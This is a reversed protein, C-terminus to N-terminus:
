LSVICDFLGFVMSKKSGNDYPYAQLATDVRVEGRFKLTNSLVHTLGLTFELYPTVYGTRQGQFDNFLEGRLSTYDYETMRQEIYTLLSYSWSVGPILPGCGRGGGYPQYPGFTCAGGELANFQYEIYSSTEIFFNENFRHTWIVNFQQINNWENTYQGNNLANFGLWLANKQNDEIWQIFGVFSPRASNSWIAIDSGGHIGLLYSWQNNLKTNFTLGMQTFASNIFSISHSILYNLPALPFEIDGPAYYRGMTILTGQGLGPVFLQFNALIPDDGYLRNEQLYQQSFVGKMISYRYDTGWFNSLNFGYDIQTQQLTDPLRELSIALENVEMQNPVLLFGMPSNSQSARSVNYGPNIWGYIDWRNDKWQPNFHDVQQQLFTDRHQYPLGLATGLFYQHPFIAAIPSAYADIFSLSFLCGWVLVM